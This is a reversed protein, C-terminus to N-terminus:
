WQPSACAPRVSHKFNALHQVFSTYASLGDGGPAIAAPDWMDAQLAIVVAKAKSAIALKFAAQLWRTDATTRDAVEQAQSAPNEFGNTWPLTDRCYGRPADRKGWHPHNAVQPIARVRSTIRERRVGLGILRAPLRRLVPFTIFLRLFRPPAIKGTGGLVRSIIRKQIVVQMGQIVKTPWERRKQVQALLRDSLPKEGSLPLALINASRRCRM